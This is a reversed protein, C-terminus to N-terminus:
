VVEEQEEQEVSREGKGGLVGPFTPLPDLSSVSRCPHLHEPSPSEEDLFSLNQYKRIKLEELFFHPFALLLERFQILLLLRL